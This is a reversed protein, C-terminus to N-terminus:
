EPLIEVVGPTSHMSCEHPNMQRLYTEPEADLIRL